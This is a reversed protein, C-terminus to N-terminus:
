SFRPSSPDKAQARDTGDWCARQLFCSGYLGLTRRGCAPVWPSPAPPAALRPGQRAPERGLVSTWSDRTPRPLRAPPRPPQLGVRFLFPSPWWSGPSILLCARADPVSKLSM